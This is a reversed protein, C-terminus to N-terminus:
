RSRKKAPVVKVVTSKRAAPKALLKAGTSKTAKASGGSARRSPPAPAPRVAKAPQLAPRPTRSAVPSTARGAPSTARAAPEPDVQAAATGVRARAPAFPLPPASPSGGQREAAAQQAAASRQALAHLVVRLMEEAPAPKGTWIEFQRAGQHVFMEVGSITEMGCARAERLLPTEIPNYVLDFILRTHLQEVAIPLDTENGRMGAPTANIVVDFAPLRPLSERTVAKAGAQRALKVAAEPTRNLIFVSAGREACSFVAARAAGGAGLVLVRADRLKLRRELPTLIGAVDTNFGYFRGDVGRLVTNVAGIRTSLPDTRELFPVVAQKLPMTVSFGALPLERALRFLDKADHTLLPLYVGNVTERRLATNLMLPSLSSDIPDGAVGYIRTAPDINEIRYLEQLIRATVQGPATANIASAAAFTFASGTRPGLVRSLVGAEGMLVGVVQTENDDAGGRLFELMTLNDGLSTATGVIKCIEPSFERMREFVRWLDGTRKFDHFSLLVAAGAERLRPLATAPLAEASEISLDVIPFGSRAAEILIELEAHPSGEFSGGNPKRRCTALFTAAGHAQVHRGLEPLAQSPDSLLDLRLEQFPFERLLAASNAAMEGASGGTIAVCLKGLRQRLRHSAIKPSAPM